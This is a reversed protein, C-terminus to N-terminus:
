IVHRIMHFTEEHATFWQHYFMGYLRVLRKLMGYLRVLRQESGGGWIYTYVDIYKNVYIFTHICIYTYVLIHIYIIYIHVFVYIKIYICIYTYMSCPLRGNFASTAANRLYHTAVRQLVGCRVAVCSLVSCCLTSM